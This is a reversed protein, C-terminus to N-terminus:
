HGLAPPPTVGTWGVGGVTGWSPQGITGATTGWRQAEITEVQGSPTAPPPPNARTDRQGRPSNPNWVVGQAVAASAPLLCVMAILAIRIM